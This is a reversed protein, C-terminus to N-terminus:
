ANHLKLFNQTYLDSGASDRPTLHINIHHYGPLRQSTYLLDDYTGLARLSLTSSTIFNLILRITECDFYSHKSPYSYILLHGGMKRPM